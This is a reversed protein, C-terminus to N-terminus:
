SFRWANRLRIGVVDEASAVEIRGRGWTTSENRLGEIRCTKSRGGAKLVGVVTLKSSLSGDIPSIDRGEELEVTAEYVCCRCPLLAEIWSGERAVSADAADLQGAAFVFLLSLLSLVLLELSVGSFFIIGDGGLYTIVRRFFVPLVALCELGVNQV